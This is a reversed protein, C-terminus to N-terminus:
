VEALCRILLGWHTFVGFGLPSEFPPIGDGDRCCKGLIGKRGYRFGRGYCGDGRESPPLPSPHPCRLLASGM